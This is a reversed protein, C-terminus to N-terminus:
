FCLQPRHRKVALLWFQPISQNIFPHRKMVTPLPTIFQNSFSTWETILSYRRVTNSKYAATFCDHSRSIFPVDRQEMLLVACVKNLSRETVFCTIICTDILDKATCKVFLQAKVLVRDFYQCYVFTSPAKFAAGKETQVM